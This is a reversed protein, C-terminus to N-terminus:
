DGSSSGPPLMQRASVSAVSHIRATALLPGTTNRAWGGPAPHSRRLRPPHGADLSGLARVPLTAGHEEANVNAARERIRHERELPDDDGGLRRRRRAVLGLPHDRRHPRHQIAGTAARLLNLGERQPHRDRGVRQELPAASTGRQHGGLAEGVNNGQPTLSAGLQVAQAGGPRRRHSGVLQPEGRGLPHSRLSREPRERGLGRLLKRTADRVRLRLRDRDHQQM